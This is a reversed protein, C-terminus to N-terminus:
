DVIEFDRVYETPIDSPVYYEYGKCVDGPEEVRFAGDWYAQVREELADADCSHGIEFERMVDMFLDNAVDWPAAVIEFEDLPVRLKVRCQRAMTHRTTGFFFASKSHPPLDDPRYEALLRYVLRVAYDTEEGEPFSEPCYYRGDERVIEDAVASEQVHVGEDCIQTAADPSCEHFLMVRPSGDTDFTSQM